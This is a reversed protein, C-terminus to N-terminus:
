VGVCVTGKIENEVTMKCAPCLNVGDRTFYHELKEAECYDCFGYHGHLYFKRVRAVAGFVNIHFAGPTKLIGKHYYISDLLKLLYHGDDTPDVIANSDFEFRLRKEPFSIVHRYESIKLFLVAKYFKCWTEVYEMRKKYTSMKDLNVTNEM